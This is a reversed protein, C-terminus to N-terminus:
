FDPLSKIFSNPTRMNLGMHPRKNHYWKLYDKLERDLGQIQNQKYKGWGLCEKRLSRNFSEIFAQENKKYPRAVRHRDAYEFVGKKFEAKFEPGGDTQLLETHKYRQKFSYRLFNLGDLATLSSYLCVQAEKTYIDVGTFAFVEGFDVSDMQVVQRPYNAQPVSGRKQNKKWKSRLQYKQGLIKYITTHSVSIGCEDKLLWQIKQGCCDRNEERLRYIKSKLEADIKRKLRPGKKAHLYRDIFENLGREKIGKIWLRVTDRNVGLNKAIHTQAIGSEFLEFCLIIKTTKLVDM